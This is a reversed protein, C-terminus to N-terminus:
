EFQVDTITVTGKTDPPNIDQGFKFVLARAADPGGGAAETWTEGSQAQRHLEDFNLTVRQPAASVSIPRSNWRTLGERLDVRTSPIGTSAITFSVKKYSQLSGTIPFGHNAFYGSGSTFKEITLSYANAASTSTSAVNRFHTTADDTEALSLSFPAVMVQAVSPIQQAQRTLQVILFPFLLAPILAAGIVLASRKRRNRALIKEVKEAHFQAAARDLYEQPVGMEEAAAAASRATRERESEERFLADARAFVQAQEDPNLESQKLM